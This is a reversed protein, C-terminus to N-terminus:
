GICDSEQILARVGMAKETLIQNRYAAVHILFLTGYLILMSFINIINMKYYGKETVNKRVVSAEPFVHFNQMSWNMKSDSQSRKGEWALINLRYLKADVTKGSLIFSLINIYSAIYIGVLNACFIM